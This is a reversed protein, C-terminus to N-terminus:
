CHSITASFQVWKWLLIQDKVFPTAKVSPMGHTHARALGRWMGNSMGHDSTYFRPLGLKGHWCGGLFITKSFSFKSETSYHSVNAFASIFSPSDSSSFSHPVAAQSDERRSTFVLADKLLLNWSVEFSSGEVRNTEKVQATPVFVAWHKVMCAFWKVAQYTLRRSM